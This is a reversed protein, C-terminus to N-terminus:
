SQLLHKGLLVDGFRWEYSSSQVEHQRAQIDAIYGGVFSYLYRNDLNHLLEKARELYERALNLVHDDINESYLVRSIQEEEIADTSSAGVIEIAKVLPFTFNKIKLDHKWDTLDDVLQLGISIMLLVEELRGLKRRDGALNSLAAASVKLLAAKNGMMMFDIEGYESVEGKHRNLFLEAELAEEMYRNLDALFLQGDLDTQLHLEISKSFILDIILGESPAMDVHGDVFDDRLTFYHYLYINALAITAVAQSESLDFVHSYWFPVYYCLQGYPKKWRRKMQATAISYGRCSHSRSELYSSYEDRLTLVRSAFDDFHASTLVQLKTKM